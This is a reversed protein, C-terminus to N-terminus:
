VAAKATAVNFASETRKFRGRIEVMKNKIKDDQIYQSLTKNTQVNRLHMWITWRSTNDLHKMQTNNAQVVGLHLMQIICRSPGDPHM